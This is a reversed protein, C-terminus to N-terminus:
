SKLDKKIQEYEKRSVEGRAYRQDLIMRVTSSASSFFISKVLWIVLLVLLVFVLLATLFGFLHMGGGMGFHMFGAGGNGFM